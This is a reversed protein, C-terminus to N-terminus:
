AAMVPGGDPRDLMVPMIMFPLGLRYLQRQLTFVVYNHLLRTLFTEKEFVIQGGFFIAKPYRERLPPALDLIEQVIDTGVAWHAEAHYGRDRMLGVYTQLDREMGAKLRALEEAGRFVAADVVGIQVFVFNAIDKGFLRVVSLLTHIGLGNFGNVFIVATPARPDPAAVPAPNDPIPPTYPNEPDVVARLVDLKRIKAGVRNYHRRIGWAAAALLGTILLTVWGGEFFKVWTVMVLIFATLLLGLGNLCLGKKWPARQGRARWWHRVMGLQSLVFTIFVNISYLVILLDVSGHSVLMLVLAGAGMLLIGNQTVLRDSLLAFRAPLWRDIAMNSLVRPGDVFGAQAAVFLLLAESVLTVLVFGGGLTPGWGATVAGFLVANLTKGEEPRVEFLLYCVIIGVVTLALSLAMYLMTRKGTRERPERLIPLGNSVAEIGTYTGAGMSYAHLVLLFMGMLGLERDAVAVDRAVRAAVAPMAGAHSFIGYGLAVAHTVVFLMFIPVLAMVSEKVGRLNLVILLVVGVVAAELRYPLWAAPLFSFVADAGSAVSLTITLVYDILLACGSVMGVSPSLLRSAVIYGGGGTPFLEIIQSYAASIVGITLATGLAVFVALFTHKGLALYAEAPGYCSSSLGDAGLGVWAFFAILSLKHFISQDALNISDGIVARRVRSALSAQKQMSM